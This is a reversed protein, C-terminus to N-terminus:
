QMHDPIYLRIHGHPWPIPSYVLYFGNTMYLECHIVIHMTILTYKYHSCSHHESYVSSNMALSTLVFGWLGPGKLDTHYTFWNFGDAQTYLNWICEMYLTIPAMTFLSSNAFAKLQLFPDGIFGSLSLHSSHYYGISYGATSSYCNQSKYGTCHLVTYCTKALLYCMISSCYHYSNYGLETNGGNGMRM